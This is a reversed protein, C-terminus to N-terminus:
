PSNVLYKFLDDLIANIAFIDSSHWHMGVFYVKNEQVVKLQKWLPNQQLKELTKKDEDREWSVFFLVDGDIDSLKEQSINEIYFFDGQQALPRQLGIDSLVMGSYHKEGYAWIGYESSTNAISVKLTHRRDGLAQKLETIRQWYDNMLQQSVDEKDLIQALEELQEKWSPPPFPLSLAVTPAIYSLQQYIGELRSTSLILDPKLKLVKELHPGDAGGVSEIGNVKGELYEPLPFGTIYTSAIPRVGLALSNALTHIFLTIVRRPTNPICTEGMEHQIVRCNEMLLVENISTQDANRGCSVLLIFTVFGAIALSIFRRLSLKMPM